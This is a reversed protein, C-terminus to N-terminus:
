QRTRGNMEAVTVILDYFPLNVDFLTGRIMDIIDYVFVM